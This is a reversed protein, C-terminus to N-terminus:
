EKDNIYDKLIKSPSIYVRKFNDLHIDEGTVLNKTKWGKIEKVKLTFLGSFSFVKNTKLSEKIVRKLSDIVVKIEKKTLKLEKVESDKQIENIVDQMKM